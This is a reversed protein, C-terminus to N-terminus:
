FLSICFPLAPMHFQFPLIVDALSITGRLLPSLGSSRVFLDGKHQLDSQQITEGKALWERHRNINKAKQVTISNACINGSINGWRRPNEIIEHKLRLSTLHPNFVYNRDSEWGRWENV